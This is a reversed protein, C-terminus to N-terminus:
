AIAMQRGARALRPERNRAAIGTGRRATERITREDAINSQPNSADSNLFYSAITATVYGFVSFAFVVVAWMVLRGATTQPYRDPGMTTMVMATWWLSYGYNRFVGQEFADIGAAGAFTVITTLALVCAFGRRQLTSGLGQIGRNLATILRLLGMSWSSTSAFNRM